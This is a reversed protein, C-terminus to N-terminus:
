TESYASVLNALCTHRFSSRKQEGDFRDCMIAMEEWNIDNRTSNSCPFPPMPLYGSGFYADPCVMVGFHCTAHGQANGCVPHKLKHKRRQYLNLLDIAVLGKVTLKM